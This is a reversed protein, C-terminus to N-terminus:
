PRKQWGLMRLANRHFVKRVDDEGLGKARLAEALAPMHSADELEHIPEGGDFDTGIAVHDIGAVKVMHLVQEVAHELKAKGRHVFKGHLNLGAVGGSDAITKLQEDTLNRKHDCVARANSHTAVIPAGAAKAIPVLDAFAADSMHSVDVLAGDAYVREALQKGLATLGVNSTGGSSGALANDRAHVLGVLRVGRAIFRDIQTIDASLAQAGEISMFADVKGDTRALLPGAASGPAPAKRFIDNAVVIKDITAALDDLDAPSPHDHAHDPAYMVLTIGVYHGQRLKEATIHGEPLNAARGKTRVQWPTDCHLDVVGPPWDTEAASPLAGATSASASPNSAGSAGAAASPSPQPGASAGSSGSARAAGSRQGSSAAAPATPEGRGCGLLAVLACGLGVYRALSGM